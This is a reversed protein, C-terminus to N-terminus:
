GSDAYSAGSGAQRGAGPHLEIGWAVGAGWTSCASGAPMRRCGEQGGVQGVVGVGYVAGQRRRMLSAIKLETSTRGSAM